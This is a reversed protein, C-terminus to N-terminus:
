ASVPPVDFIIKFCDFKGNEKNDLYDLYLDLESLTKCACIIAPHLNYNFTLEMGLDFAEM